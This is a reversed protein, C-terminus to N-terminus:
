ETIYKNLEKQNTKNGGYVSVMFYEEFYGDSEVKIDSSLEIRKGLKLQNLVITQLTKTSKPAFLLESETNTLGYKEQSYQWPNNKKGNEKNNFVKSLDGNFKDLAYDWGCVCAATGCASYYSEQNHKLKGDWIKNLLSELEDIRKLKPYDM